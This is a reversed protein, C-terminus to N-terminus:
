PKIMKKSLLGKKSRVKKYYDLCEGINLFEVGDDLEFPQNNFCKIEAIESVRDLFVNKRSDIFKRTSVFFEDTDITEQSVNETVLTWGNECANVNSVCENLKSIVYNVLMLNENKDNNDSLEKLSYVYALDRYALLTDEDVLFNLYTKEDVDVCFDLLSDIVADYCIKILGKGFGKKEMNNEEGEKAM